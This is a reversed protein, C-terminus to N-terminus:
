RKSKALAYLVEATPEETDSGPPNDSLKVIVTRSEPDIFIFQGYLGLAMATGPYPHWVQAAYGWGHDLSVVPTNMRDLWDRSIIRTSGAFGGNLIAMGVRAYDRAAANFCCFTKETGGVRDVNWTAPFEAGVKQWVNESFYDAVRMGTVKKIIMGLMQTDISRYEANLGPEFFMKRNNGIFWDLDTTAYMQAIAVGWGQPGTPYNDSVGVGGQMDLLSKVTVRDFATGNKYEPFYDIFFDSEKIKGADILQGIMISTMTKAVSYSPLRQEASFGERYWEHTLVGNRIILFANTYTADLFEQWTIPMKQFQVETPLEEEGRPIDIPNTAPEIEHWPMLTPTQSAPALGLRIASIPDPYRIVKTFGFLSLSLISLFIIARKILKM